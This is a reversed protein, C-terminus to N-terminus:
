SSRIRPKPWRELEMIERGLERRREPIAEARREMQELQMVQYPEAEEAEGERAMEERMAELVGALNLEEDELDTLASRAQRLREKMPGLRRGSLEIRQILLETDQGKVQKQLLSAIQALTRNLRVAEELLTTEEAAAPEQATLYSTVLATAALAAALATSTKM